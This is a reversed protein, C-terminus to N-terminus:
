RDPEPNAGHHAPLAGAGAHDGHRLTRSAEALSNFSEAILFVENGLRLGRIAGQNDEGYAENFNERIGAPLDAVTAVVTVNPGSRWRQTTRDVLGQVTELNQQQRRRKKQAARIQDRVDGPFQALDEETLNLIALDAAPRLQEGLIQEPALAQDGFMGTQQTNGERMATEAYDRLKKALTNRNRVGAFFEIAARELPPMPNFADDQRLLEDVTVGNRRADSVKQAADALLGGIDYEPAVTGDQIRTRLESMAPAADILAGTLAKANDNTSELMRSLGPQDGYAYALLAGQIRRIGVQSIRGQDDM